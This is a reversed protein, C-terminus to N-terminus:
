QHHTTTSRGSVGSEACVQSQEACAVPDWTTHQHSLALPQARPPPCACRKACCTHIRLTTQLHNTHRCVPSSTPLPYQQIFRQGAHSQVRQHGTQQNISLNTSTLVMNLPPTKHGESPTAGGTTCTFCCQRCTTLNDPTSDNVEASLQYMYDAVASSQVPGNETM